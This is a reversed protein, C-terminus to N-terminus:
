TTTTFSLFVSQLVRFMPCNFEQREDFQVDGSIYFFFTKQTAIPAKREMEFKGIM